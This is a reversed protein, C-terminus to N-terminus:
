NCEPKVIQYQEVTRAEEIFNILKKEQCEEEKKNNEKHM